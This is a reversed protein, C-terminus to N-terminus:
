LREIDARTFVHTLASSQERPQAQRNATIVLDALKLQRDLDSPVQAWGLSPLLAIALALRSMKM